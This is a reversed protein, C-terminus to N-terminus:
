RKCNVAVGGCLEDFDEEYDELDEDDRTSSPSRDGRNDSSAPSPSSVFDSM